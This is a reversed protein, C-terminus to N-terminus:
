NQAAFRFQLVTFLQKGTNPVTGSVSFFDYTSFFSKKLKGFLRFSAINILEPQM